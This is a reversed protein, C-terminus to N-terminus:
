LSPSRDERAFPMAARIERLRLNVARRACQGLTRNGPAKALRAGATLFALASRSLEKTRQVGPKPLLNDGLIIQRSLNKTVSKAEAQLKGTIQM